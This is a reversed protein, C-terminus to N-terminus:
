PENVIAINHVSGMLNNFYEYPQTHSALRVAFASIANDNPLRGNPLESRRSRPIVFSGLALKAIDFSSM